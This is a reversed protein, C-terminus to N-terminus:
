KRCRDIITAIAASDLEGGGSEVLRDIHTSALAAGSLVIDLERATQLAIHMDKQHLKAKFGPNFDQHLMRQGHVKLIKSYAFGGLLAERVKAPDVGADRALKLAEAVAAITQAVLIQNCAKAVQGAGHDGVHIIHKGMCELLPLVRKFIPQSGGVMISLSRDIAGQEGGSVPADLMEIGRAKLREAIRRTVGPSLTSMDVVVAGAEASHIVGADGILVEEVDPTDAVMTIIIAANKAAAEPSECHVAGRAVLPEAAKPRRAFVRMPYGARILNLAMPRGMIGPGIFGVTESRM